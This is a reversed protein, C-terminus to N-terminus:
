RIELLEIDFVLMGKPDGPGGIRDYALDGPIWFRRKEGKVMLQLGEVWGAIVQGVQFTAPEGRPVSSELMKGDPTWLTYHVTVTSQPTPHVTGLGVTIVKSALGSPTKIANAPPAAVDAPAPIQGPTASTEEKLKCAGVMLPVLAMVVALRFRM